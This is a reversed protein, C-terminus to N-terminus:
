RQDQSLDTVKGEPSRDADMIRDSIGNDVVDNLLVGMLGAGLRRTAQRAQVEPTYQERIVLLAPQANQRFWSNWGSSLVPPCDLVLWEYRDNAWNLFSRLMPLHTNLERRAMANKVASVGLSEDGISFVCDAPSVLRRIACDVGSRIKVGGLVSSFRPREFNLEALLVSAGRTSLAWALNFATCTKGDGATPSTVFIRQPNWWGDALLRDAVDRYSADAPSQENAFLLASHVGERPLHVAELRGDGVPMILSLETPPTLHQSAM